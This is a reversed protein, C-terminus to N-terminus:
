VWPFDLAPPHRTPCAHMPPSRSAPKQGFCIIDSRERRRVVKASCGECCAGPRSEAAIPARTRTHHSSLWSSGKKQMRGRVHMTAVM